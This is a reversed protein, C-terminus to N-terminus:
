RELRFLKTLNGANPAVMQADINNNFANRAAVIAAVDLHDNGGQFDADIFAEIVNMENYEDFTRRLAYRADVFANAAKVLESIVDSKKAALNAM